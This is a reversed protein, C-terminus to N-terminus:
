KNIRKSELVGLRAEIEELIIVIQEDTLRAKAAIKARTEKLSKYRAALASRVRIKNGVKMVDDAM